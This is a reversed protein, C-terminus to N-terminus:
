VGLNTCLLPCVQYWSSYAVETISFVRLLVPFLVGISLTSLSVFAEQALVNASQWLTRAFNACHLSTPTRLLIVLPGQPCYKSILPRRAGRSHLALTVGHVVTSLTNPYDVCRIRTQCWRVRCSTSNRMVSMYANFCRSVLKVAVWTGKGKKGSAHKDEFDAAVDICHLNEAVIQKHAFVPKESDSSKGATGDVEVSYVFLM